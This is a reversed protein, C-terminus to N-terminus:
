CWGFISRYNKKHKVDIKQVQFSHGGFGHFNCRRYSEKDHHMAYYADVWTFIENINKKCFFKKGKLTCHVFKLDRRLDGWYDVDIKSVRPTLLGMATNLYPRSGKMVFFLKEVVSHFIDGKKDSLKEADERVEITKNNRPVLITHQCIRWVNEYM